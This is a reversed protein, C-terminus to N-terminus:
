LRYINDASDRDILKVFPDVGAYEPKGKVEIIITNTGSKIEHKQLYLVFDEASLDEPDDSFLGIDINDVFDIETEKGEGDAQKLAADITLTVEYMEDKGEIPKIQVDTMKLDYLSIHEFLNSVFAKEKENTDQNIYSILDLTTPYPTSQFKFENLFDKLAKNLREEGLRDKLSMMVVSGKRYHIYQQNESRFLPMEELFEVSRGRLYRDLEYKLFKRIKEKGYKKEMVMLSSYQSLTESIIASGQVNAAGVQHGWWQHAVEHATIYYVPDINEPDRLDTIFGINESYPVTNAFSQAFSRYGPFEIIRMQQHQYPGFNETFYDISDRVSETMRDVNMAHDKHYYVEIDIGKYKEKKSELKASMFSYFNVMPSNMKYHFIRRGDKISESQLYGPAIAFQDSSTSITAEFDIFGVGPGFFNENYFRKDELKNARELPELDYKRRKHRDTLQYSQNYGFGAFLEGNNIFTGNEVLSFDNNGDSFGHHERTASLKGTRSENPEFPQEFVFWASNFKEDFDQLSGGEIEVNWEKTFRPKTVLFRKITENSANILTLDATAEIRRESPFIDVKAHVKTISPLRANMHEVYKKEYDAQLQETDDAIRFENIVRTNYHVVSGAGIFVVLGFTVVLKGTKGLYYGLKSLRTKLKQAPGRHWLGHALSALVITLGTWYLMYWHHAQLFHGYGNIDSYFVRPAGSFQFMNHSFGFNSLVITSIIYLVFLLMGVYKNPSLVQLFFALVATMIVPLLTVYGLRTIYQSLEYNNYGQLMQNILTVTMGFVYLLIFVLSIAVIKSLWFTSNKVPMSDVIDGMGSDRERWVIEASYYALIIMMLLGTSGVILTVMSQTLPWNPTGFMGNPDILPAVLLFVTLVALVLFPASFVVQKIEFIIRLKLHSLTQIGSSKVTVNNDLLKPIKETQLQLDEQAKKQAKKSLKKVKGQILRAKNKLGGFVVMIIVSVSLWLLRNKLLIGSLEIPTNNKDHMTWYRSVEGFANLGFPDLLAAMNRYEPESFFQGSISYLIFLGVAALYVAMMSRFKIAVAYFFSALVFLTPVSLYFFATLYYSFHTDGLREPDIWGTLSGIVIGLIIGIPVFAFVTVVVALSGFFRGLQYSLPNMPKCYILESMQNTENRTATSAVFNVVLFMSFISMILLTQAISFPGNYLVNGGGGIQVNESVTAFFTLFFFILCTVYFSPQRTFYRWEFALMKLLM